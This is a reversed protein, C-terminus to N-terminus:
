KRPGSFRNHSYVKASTTGTTTRVPTAVSDSSLPSRSSIRSVAASSLTKIACAHRGPTIAVLHCADEKDASRPRGSSLRPYFDHGRIKGKDEEHGRIKGHGRIKRIPVSTSHFRFISVVRYDMRAVSHMSCPVVAGRCCPCLPLATSTAGFSIGTLVEDIILEKDYELGAM